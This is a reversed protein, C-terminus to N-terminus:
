LILLVRLNRSRIPSLIYVQVQVRIYNLSLTFQQSCSLSQTFQQISSPSQTFQQLWSSMPTSDSVQDRSQPSRPTTFQPRPSRLRRLSYLLPPPRRYQRRYQCPHLKYLQLPVQPGM